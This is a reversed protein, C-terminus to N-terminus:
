RSINVEMPAGDKVFMEYIDRAQDDSGGNGFGDSTLIPNNGGRTSKKGLASSNTRKM